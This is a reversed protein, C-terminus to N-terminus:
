PIVGEAKLFSLVHKLREIYRTRNPWRPFPLSFFFWLSVRANSAARIVHPTIGRMVSIVATPNLDRIKRSLQEVGDRRAAERRSKLRMHNVPTKCLDELYCRKSSFLLLFDKPCLQRTDYISRFAICTATHLPTEDAYFFHGKAPPSEGVFLVDVKDPEYASRITELSKNDFTRAECM